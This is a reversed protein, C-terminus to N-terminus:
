LTRMNPSVSYGKDKFVVWVGSNVFRMVRETPLIQSYQDRGNSGYWSVTYCNKHILPDMLKVTFPYNLGANEYHKCIFEPNDKEFLSLKLLKSSCAM